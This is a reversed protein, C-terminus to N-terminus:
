LERWARLAAVLGARRTAVAGAAGSGRYARVSDVVWLRLSWLVVIPWAAVAACRGQTARVCRVANRALLRAKEPRLDARGGAHVVLAAPEYLVRCGDLRLRWFWDMEEWYMFYTEPLPHRELLSRTTVVLSAAASSVFRRLSPEGWKEVHVRRALALVPEDPLLCWERLLTTPTPLAQVTRELKGDARATGPLVVDAEGAMVVACLRELHAPLITLDDNMFAIFQGGGRAVGCNVAAAYGCNQEVDVVEVDGAAARVAEDAEVNVVLISATVQQLDRLLRALQVPRHFAVVVCTLDAVTM